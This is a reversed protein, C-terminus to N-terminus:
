PSREEEAAFSFHQQAMVWRGDRKELVGTWRTNEWSAPQGKWENIDDLICFFWAVEGSRSLKIKLDRIEYRVAKFDPSGWFREGKKFEEFGKIVAGDPHVELFDPDNAILSYLLRFDKDKAWGICGRISREIHGLEGGEASAPTIDGTQSYIEHRDGKNEPLIVRSPLKKEAAERAFAGYMFERNYAHIPFVVRPKLSEAQQFKEIFAFKILRDMLEVLGGTAACHVLSRGDRSVAKEDAGKATLFDVMDQRGAAAALHLPSQGLDDKENVVKPDEAVLAKVKALDGARVADHVTQMDDGAWAFLARDSSRHTHLPLEDSPQASIGAGLSSLMLFLASVAPYCSARKM